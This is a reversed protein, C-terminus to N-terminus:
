LLCTQIHIINRTRNTNAPEQNLFNSMTWPLPLPPSPIKLIKMGLEEPERHQGSMPIYQTSTKVIQVEQCHTIQTSTDLQLM